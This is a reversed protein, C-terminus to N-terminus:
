QTVNKKHTTDLVLTIKSDESPTFVLKDPNDMAKWKEDFKDISYNDHFIVSILRYLSAFAFYNAADGYFLEDNKKKPYCTVWSFNDLLMKKADEVKKLAFTSTTVITSKVGLNKLALFIEQYATCYAVVFIM